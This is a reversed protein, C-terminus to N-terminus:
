LLGTFRPSTADGSCQRYEDACAHNAPASGTNRHSSQRYRPSPQQNGAPPKARRPRRLVAGFIPAHRLEAGDRPSYLVARHRSTQFRHHRNREFYPEPSHNLHLDESVGRRSRSLQRLRLASEEGDKHCGDLARQKGHQQNAHNRPVGKRCHELRIKEQAQRLQSAVPDAGGGDFRRVRVHDTHGFIQFRSGSGRLAFHSRLGIRRQKGGRRRMPHVHAFGTAPQDRSRQPHLPLM